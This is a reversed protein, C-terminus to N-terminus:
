AAVELGLHDCPADVLDQHTGLYRETTQISAHGLSIQIQELGAGGRRALKATTRRLDHPALEPVGILAGYRKVWNWLSTSSEIREGAVQDMQDVPRFVYGTHIGAAETWHDIRAKTWDQMAVSRVRNGKGMLDVIVWRGERQQIHEITLSCAESRRLGCGILVALLARDRKGALTNSDPANLLQEAQDRNLWNGLRTGHRPVGKIHSIGNAFQPDILGNDAAESVLKRIASLRQNITSSSKGEAELSARYANVAAKSFLPAKEETGEHWARFDELATDYARISHLSRVSKLALSKLTQWRDDFPILENM